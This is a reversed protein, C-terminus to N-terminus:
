ARAEAEATPRMMPAHRIEHIDAAVQLGATRLAVHIERYLEERGQFMTPYNRFHVWVMYTYPVTAGDMLRALPPPDPEIVTCRRAAGELLAKVSQPDAEGSVRVLYWPSFRHDPGHLNTFSQRSLQGNPVVYTTNDWGRLRTARWNIDTVEGETGDAFRLWDGIRFPREISLALGAFLDGLTQQMAFAVLAAVAGTSVYLETPTYDNAAIFTMVGFFLALGYLVSRSLQSLRTKQGDPEQALLWLEIFRALGAAVALYVLLETIEGMAVAWDVLGLAAFVWQLLLGSGFAASPLLVFDVLAGSWLFRSVFADVSKLRKSLRWALPFSLLLVAFLVRGEQTVTTTLSDEM